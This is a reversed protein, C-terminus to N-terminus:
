LWRRGSHHRGQIDWSSGCPLLFGGAAKAKRFTFQHLCRCDFTIESHSVPLVKLNTKGEFFSHYWIESDIRLRTKRIFLAQNKCWLKTYFQHGLPPPHTVSTDLHWAVKQIRKGEHIPMTHSVSSGPPMVESRPLFACPIAPTKLNSM